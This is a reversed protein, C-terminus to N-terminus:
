SRRVEEDSEGDSSEEEPVCGRSPGWGRGRGRGRGRQVRPGAWLRRLRRLGRRLGLLRLLATDEGPEAGSPGTAGGGRRLAVRVREAGNGRGGRGGGGGAGRPRGPFRGRASGPGPCSGGGAAAAMKAGHSPGPLRPSPRGTRLAPPLPSLPPPAPRGRRVVVVLAAAPGGSAPPRAPWACPVVPSPTRPRGAGESRAQPACVGRQPRLPAFRPPRRSIYDPHRAEEALARPSPSSPERGPGPFRTAPDGPPTTRAGPEEWQEQRPQRGGHVVVGLTGRARAGRGRPGPFHLKRSCSAHAPSPATSPMTLRREPRSGAATRCPRSPLRRLPRPRPTQTSGSLLRTASLLTPACTGRESPGLAGLDSEARRPNCHFPRTVQLRM